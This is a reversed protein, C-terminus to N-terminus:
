YGSSSGTTKDSCCHKGTAVGLRLEKAPVPHVDQHESCHDRQWVFTEAAATQSWSSKFDWKSSKREAKLSATMLLTSLQEAPEETLKQLSTCCSFPLM